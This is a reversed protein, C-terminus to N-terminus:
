DEYKIIAQTYVRHNGEPTVGHNGCLYYGDRLKENIIANLVSISVAEILVFDKVRRTDM